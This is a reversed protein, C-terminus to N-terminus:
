IMAPPARDHKSYTPCATCHPCTAYSPISAGAHVRSLNCPDFLADALNQAISRQFRANHLTADLLSIAGSAIIMPREIVKEGIASNLVAIPLQVKEVIAGCLCKHLESVVKLKTPCQPVTPCGNSLIRGVAYPSLIAGNPGMNSMAPCNSVNEYDSSTDWVGVIDLMSLISQNSGFRRPNQQQVNNTGDAGVIDLMPNALSQM